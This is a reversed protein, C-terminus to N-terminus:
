LSFADANAVNERVQSKGPRSATPAPAAAAEAFNDKAKAVAGSQESFDDDLNRDFPDAFGAAGAADGASKKRTSIKELQSELLAQAEGSRGQNFLDNASTLTRSTEARTLRALVIADLPSVESPTRTMQAALVGFCEGPDGNAVDSTGVGTYTLSVDAIPREGLPSAPVELRLLLTKQEGAAFSGLPVIVRRDVQQYSRDFVEAVRVGPALEVVLKGDTAVTRILSQLEQTFIEGLNSGTESFYHRGNSERAIASMLKENYDIDVGISSITVGENRAQRALVRIGQEDRTGRNAEGDSLLLMRAVGPRRHELTRMGLDIGCSVCTHGSPLETTAVRLDAIIREPNIADVTTVPILVRAEDSYSVVSVTDGERLHRIMGEAADIANRERQGVMSGSRDMVIALNIPSAAGGLAVQTPDLESQIDVFLYTENTQDALMKAQALRGELMLTKGSVFTSKDVLASPIAPDDVRKPNTKSGPDPQAAIKTGSSGEASAEAPSTLSWVTASTLTMGLAALFGVTTIRM